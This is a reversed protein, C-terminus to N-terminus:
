DLVVNKEDKRKVVYGKEQWQATVTEALDDLEDKDALPTETVYIPWSGDAPTCKSLRPKFARLPAESDPQVLYRTGPDRIMAVHLVASQVGKCTGSEVSVAGYLFGGNAQVRDPYITPLLQAADDESGSNSLRDAVSRGQEPPLQQAVGALAQALARRDSELIEEGLAPAVTNTMHELVAEFPGGIQAREVYATVVSNWKEDFLKDPPDEVKGVLWTDFAESECSELADDWRAFEIDRLGFYAGQLFNPVKDNTACHEGIRWAVEDQASYDSIKGIMNWVPNWIDADIAIMSLSVLTEADGAGQMVKEFTQGALDKDCKVLAQYAPIVAAGTAREARAVQSKCTAAEVSPSVASAALLAGLVPISTM